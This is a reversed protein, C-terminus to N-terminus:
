HGFATLIKAVGAGKVQDATGATFPIGMELGIGVVYTVGKLAKDPWTVKLEGGKYGDQVKCWETSAAVPLKRDVGSFSLAYQGDRFVTEGVIGVSLTIRFVPQQWELPLDLNLDARLRPVTVIVQVPEVEVHIDLPSRVVTDFTHAEQLNIGQLMSAHRSLPVLREGWASVADAKQIRKCLPTLGNSFHADALHRFHFLSERIAKQVMSVAGFEATNRRNAAMSPLTDHQKKSPGAARRVVIKDSGKRKYAVLNGVRGTFRLGGSPDLFAM